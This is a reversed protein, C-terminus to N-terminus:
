PLPKAKPAISPPSKAEPHRALIARLQAVVEPQGAALNKKEAPDSQYDYLEFEATSADAGPVKWEVLRHRETRIARGMREGRPFCHYAHDRIRQASDRLVPVLSLGDIRQPGSPAPLGALEALTPFIDVTEVLQRTVGGPQTIGPAVIVLPIRNAQEYNTHKTWYGHDGLHWGHDGWLVVITDDALGTDDLADLLKGVQADM